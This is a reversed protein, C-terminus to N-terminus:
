SSLVERGRMRALWVDVLGPVLGVGAQVVLSSEFTRTLVNFILVAALGGVLVLLAPLPISYFAFKREFFDVALQRGEARVCSVVIFVYKFAFWIHFTLMLTALAAFFIAIANVPNPSAFMHAIAPFEQFCLWLLAALYWGYALMGSLAGPWFFVLLLVFCGAGLGLFELGGADAGRRDQEFWAYTVLALVVLITQANIRPFLRTSVFGYFPVTYIFFFVAGVALELRLGFDYPGASNLLHSSYSWLLDVLLPVFLAVLAFLTLLWVQRQGPMGAALLYVGCVFGADVLFVFLLDNM